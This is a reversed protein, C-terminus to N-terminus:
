KSAPGSSQSFPFSELLVFPDHQTKQGCLAITTICLPKGRLPALYVALWQTVMEHLRPDALSSTLTIHFTFYEFIKHYGWILLYRRQTDSLTGRRAIDQTSLPARLADPVSVCIRELTHLRQDMIQPTLALFGKGESFYQLRLPATAFTELRSAIEAGSERLASESLGPRLEFPAKLTAHAGYHAPLATVKRWIEPSVGEPTKQTVACGTVIDRGLLPTLLRHAETNPSPIWYFAYREYM